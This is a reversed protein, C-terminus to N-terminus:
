RGRGPAKLSSAYQPVVGAALVGCHTPSTSLPKTQVLAALLPAEQVFASPLPASSEIQSGSALGCGAGSFSKQREFGVPMQLPPGFKPRTHVAGWPKGVASHGDAVVGTAGLLTSTSSGMGARCRKTSASLPPVLLPETTLQVIGGM